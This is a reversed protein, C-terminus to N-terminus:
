NDPKIIYQSRCYEKNAIAWRLAELFKDIEAYNNYLGLSMRVMGPLPVEPHCHYYDLKEASLQLLNEVYPHACFLGNRVAIGAEYSLVEALLKHHIGQVTFSCLSVREQRNNEWGYLTVGSLRSLGGLAYHILDREYNRVTSMGIGTLTKLAALLAVVGMINPTGAENKAPPQQWEIMQRSVLRVDGGGQYVPPFQAFFAQPGILIGIGFPAYMKHASFVLFDIHEPSDEPKMDVPCHPVWQAGDVLIRAGYAHALTAIRYVPNIIGTVNSAGTVTVLKVKGSYKKLKAEMDDLCLNGFRDVRVYDVALQSQWPLDNALHEMDTSLVVQDGDEQRLLYALMNIAETTNKTYIVVDQGGAKVFNKVADRTEEYIESSLVSKYGSGRHISSYWPAFDEVSKLVSVFPPTTAANDFNIATVKKGNVLPVVTDVGVVLTRLYAALKEDRM